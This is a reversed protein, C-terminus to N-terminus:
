IVSVCGYRPTTCKPNLNSCICVYRPTLGLMLASGGEENYIRIMASLSSEKSYDLEEGGLEGTPLVTAGRPARLSRTGESVDAVSQQSPGTGTGLLESSSSPCRMIRNRAVDFPTTLVQAAISAVAGLVAGQLPSPKQKTARKVEGQSV